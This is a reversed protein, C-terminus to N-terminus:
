CSFKGLVLSCNNGGFGFSNSLVCEVPAHRNETQLNSGLEPDRRETNLTGPILQEEICLASILAEIIGAAGLTHGTWGKTSSCPTESGIVSLVARDEARDNIATATGHLNVLDVESPRRGARELAAEMANAAGHGDPSPTSMHYADSSEGYGLLAVGDFGGRQADPTELLAFGGAEGISIGDRDGAFPRCPERSVLELSHFGYLTTLCLSDVGGVIAADCLGATIMRHADSFAKGSSSCATSISFAPGELGLYQSVFDTVSFLDHTHRHRFWSPLPGEGARERYALETALIGSTSTGVFLGIRHAGYRDRAAAVAELFGDQVLAQEALRNNRCDFKAYPGSLAVEELSEVRGVFTELEAHEFDNKKLGGERNQLARRLANVGQGVASVTSYASIVLPKM